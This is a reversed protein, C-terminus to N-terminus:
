LQSLIVSVALNDDKSAVDILSSLPLLLCSFLSKLIATSVNSSLIRTTIMFFRQMASADYFAAIQDCSERNLRDQFDRDAIM